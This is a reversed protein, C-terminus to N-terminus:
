FFRSQEWVILDSVQYVVKGGPKYYKPGEGDSRWKQLTHISYEKGLTKKFRKIAQEPTYYKDKFSSM